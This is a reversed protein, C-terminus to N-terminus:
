DSDSIVDNFSCCLTQFIRLFTFASLMVQEIVDLALCGQRSVKDVSSSILSIVHGFRKQEDVPTDM